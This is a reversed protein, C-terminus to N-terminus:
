AHHASRRRHKRRASPKWGLRRLTGYTYAAQRRKNRPFKKRAERRLRNELQRPM